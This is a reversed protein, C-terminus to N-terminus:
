ISQLAVSRDCVCKRVVLQRNKWVMQTLIQMNKSILCEMNTNERAPFHWLRNINGCSSNEKFFYRNIHEGKNWHWGDSEGGDDRKKLCRDRQGDRGRDGKGRMGGDRSLSRDQKRPGKLGGRNRRREREGGDDGKRAERRILNSKNQKELIHQIFQVSSFSM